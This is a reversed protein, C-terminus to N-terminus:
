EADDNLTVDLVDIGGSCLPCSERGDIDKGNIEAKIAAIDDHSHRHAQIVYRMLSRVDSRQERRRQLREGLKYSVGIIFLVVSALAGPGFVPSNVIADIFALM